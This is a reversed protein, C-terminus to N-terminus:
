VWLNTVINVLTQWKDRDQAMHIWNVGNWGIEKVDMKMSGERGHGSRALPRKGEPKGAL